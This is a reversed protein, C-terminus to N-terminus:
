HDVHFWTSQLLSAIHVRAKKVGQAHSGAQLKIFQTQCDVPHKGVRAANKFNSLMEMRAGLDHIVVLM